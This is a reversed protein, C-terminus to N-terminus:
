DVDLAGVRIKRYAGDLKANTSSYGLLYYSTLDDTLRRMQARLDNSGLLALGDTNEALIRLNTERTRLIAHDVDLPLASEISSDFAPLGRPDIPYFSVNARNADGLMDLFLRGDDAMALEMLDADWAGRDNV